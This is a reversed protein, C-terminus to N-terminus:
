APNRDGLRGVGGRYKTDQIQISIGDPDDVYLEETDGRQSIDANLKMEKLKALVSKADFRDVALCIHDIRPAGGDRVPYLGLFGAGARLNVGLGQRTLVPLGFLKQYFEQSRAVNEVHLTAHNLQTAPGVLPATQTSQITPLTMAVLALVMDRRSLRGADYRNLMAELDDLV